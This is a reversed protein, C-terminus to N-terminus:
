RDVKAFLEAAEKDAPALKVAQNLVEFAKDRKNWAIYLKGLNILTRPHKGFTKIVNMYTTEAKAYEKLALYCNVLHSYPEPANPFAEVAQALYEIADDPFNAEALLTGVRALIGPEAGYEEAIKRLTARGRPLDGESIFEGAKTFLAEKRIREEEEADHASKAQSEVLAKHIITLVGALRNEEGPKYPISASASHSIEQILKKVKGNANLELVCEHLNIEVVSRAKGVVKDAEFLTLASLIAELAREPENRKILSKARAINQSVVPSVSLQTM